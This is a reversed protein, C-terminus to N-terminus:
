LGLLLERAANLEKAFHTSGGHDPHVKIMLRLYAAKIEDSSAGVKVELIERADEVTMKSRGPSPESRAKEKRGSGDSGPPPPPPPPPPPAVYPNDDYILPPEWYLSPHGQRLYGFAKPLNWYDVPRLYHPHGNPQVAIAVDRGLNLIEDPNLLSRATEGHTTSESSSGGHDGSSTSESTSETVVTKKGLTDSLYKASDLDNINCFWKYACNSLITGRAEGYHDKLQDLGQVVLAFDVGFGGMTAIDGPLDEVRGLAAFEDILFLCRHRSERRKRPRKFSHMAAAVILRLWTKQTDMRDTPIVVYVTMKRTALEDMSFSSTATSAKVQPDSLFRTNESLNAMVGSYTEDALDIFPAAMERIAGDFAESAAMLTLYDKTFEKRTLSVIKRARALTKQEGALESRDALWLFVATLVNAASGQWFRDKANAPAPCIAAALAQAIAVANPDSRVLIDLPNYTAPPLSRSPFTEGLENWPNLIHINQHLQDRRVRATVAANEGKPDIVFASGDYCLLTPVIVRTGKGTRTRAVILTHHEPTSCVPAGPIELPLRTLEPASSKGFFLGRALCTDDVVDLQTPAYHATGYIDSVTRGASTGKRFLRYLLYIGVIGAIAIFALLALATGAVSKSTVPTPSQRAVTGAALRQRYDREFDRGKGAAQWKESLRSLDTSFIKETERLTAIPIEKKVWYRNRVENWRATLDAALSVDRQYDAPSTGDQGAPVKSVPVPTEPNKAIAQTLLALQHDFRDVYGQGESVYKGRIAMIEDLAKKDEAAFEEATIEGRDRRQQLLLRRRQPELAARADTTVSDIVARDHQDRQRKFADAKAEWQPTLTALRAKILGQIQSEAQKQDDASFQRLQQWLTKLEADIADQRLSWTQYDIQESNRLYRGETAHVNLEVIREITAQPVQAFAPAACLCLILVRPVCRWM